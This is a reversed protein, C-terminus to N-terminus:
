MGPINSDGDVQGAVFAMKSARHASTVRSSHLTGNGDVGVVPNSIRGSYRTLGKPDGSSGSM